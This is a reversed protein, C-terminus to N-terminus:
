PGAPPPAAEPSASLWAMPVLKRGERWEENLTVGEIEGWVSEDAHDLVIVQLAGKSAATVQGLVKFVRRVAEVDEDLLKPDEDEAADGKRPALRRPFYVQSPQDYVVFGPVPNGQQSTFLEQLALTVAVHYSLWNAGSGIEFLYDDRGDAGRVKVALDAVSVSIADNPREADLSPILRAAFVSVKALAAQERKRVDAEAVAAQLAKVRERLEVVEALLDNGASVEDYTALAQDLRGLFRDIEMARYLAKRVDESKSALENKRARIATLKETAMRIRERTDHFEKEFADPAPKFQKAAGEVSEVAQCLENLEESAQDMPEHCIPCAADEGMQTKLWTAVGLRDRQTKLATLYDAATDRLRSMEGHRRRLAGLESAVVSEERELGVLEAISTNITEPTIAAARSSEKVASRLVELMVESTEDPVGAKVLGYERARSTWSKLESTWRTSAQNLATLEREKRALDRRVSELEWRQALVEPTLAGLVYPFIAKLKERHEYTDAKFFLVDQNAIVNQPQFCFAMLDRFSPRSRFTQGSAQPDLALNSLRALEDLRRKLADVSTNSAPLERPIQIVDGELVYMEATGKQKGPNKRAFLKEGEDTAVVIGFWSCHDRITNVPIACKDSGLCWDIIPILASKGTKSAGSIVNVMGVTFELTRPEFQTNQPWLILKKIQLYM